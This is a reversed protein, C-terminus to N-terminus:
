RLFTNGRGGPMATPMPGASRYAASFPAAGSPEPPFAHGVELMIRRPGSKLLIGAETIRALLLGNPLRDGVKSHYVQGQVDLVAIAPNGLIVGKLEIVPQPPPPAVPATPIMSATTPQPRAAVPLISPGPPVPRSKAAAAKQAQGPVIKPVPPKFPDRAAVPSVNTDEDSFATVAGPAAPASGNAAATSPNSAVTAAAAAPQATSAAPKEGLHPLVFIAGYLLVLVVAAGLVILKNRDEPRYTM